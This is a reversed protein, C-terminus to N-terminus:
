PAWWGSPRPSRPCSRSCGSASSTGPGYGTWSSPSADPSASPPSTRSWCASVSACTPTPRRPGGELAYVGKEEARYGLEALRGVTAELEGAPDDRFLRVVLRFLRLVTSFNFSVLTAALTGGMVIMLAPPDIFAHLSGGLWIAIGLLGLGLVIGILTSM